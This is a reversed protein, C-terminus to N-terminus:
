LRPHRRVQRQGKKKPVNDDAHDEVMDDNEAARLWEDLRIPPGPADPYQDHFTKLAKPANKFNAADYWTDDPDHGTWQAQYQLKKYHTRSSKVRDVLWEKEGDVEIPPPPPVVQGPLPDMRAKRLRDAHFVDHMKIREPLRLRYSHGVKEIIEFPGDNQRDLKTSPRDTPWGKTSVYVSDGPGFDPERRKKNAQRAQREQAKKLNERAWQWVQHARQAFSQAQERNMRETPSSFTRTREEWDYHQRPRMGFEIEYPRLGTSEHPLTAQAYDMAPLHDSWDDQFHSVYPRLRQTLWENVIETNGDTQPHGATSLKQRVGTLKCLENMFASVFQPGRDSVMTLPTGFIRWIYTYYLWAVDAASDTKHGPLSFVRKSLRCVFVWAFDFGRKDRPFEKGDVSIHEWPRDPIPLSKLLGPTKDRPVTHWRCTRCNGMFQEMAKNMGPWSYQEQLIKRMKTKGPHASTKADHIERILATRLFNGAKDKEPVFLKGGPLYLGRQVEGDDALRHRAEERNAELIRDILLYGELPEPDVNEVVAAAAVTAANEAELDVVVANVRAPDILCATRARERRAKVTALDETKRSLADACVNSKGPRFSMQYDYGSLQEQWGAQRANLLRKTQFYELAEHDTVITFRKSLGLLEANWFQLARVVALLEKDQIPYNCEADNMVKSFFSVPRWLDDDQKQSFVASVVGDSADTEVTTQRDTSYHRLLPAQTLMDKLTKFARLEKPGMEFSRGKKSLDTLPKAIRGFNEIFRRYFNCFGLFSKVGKLSSPPQWSTVAQIKVPDVRLGDVGVIYGLFKVNRVEFESKKIDVQLGADRLRKLVQRVHKEHERVNESYIIIDDVYATCFVDLLGALVSNIYAQFTAPGNTLGFPVVRWQFSGYRTRFATLDVSDPHMRIRHFAQRIDLKTFIKAKGLRDLTESILPLPHRDKKTISNLKRFDVCFRWGGGPKKAFLVPSQYSATSPEIFGKKTLEGLTQRLLELHEISLKYLPSTVDPLDNTLEIKMDCARHPPLEDSATKSFVDALDRWKRPLKQRVLRATDPDESRTRKEEIIGGIEVSTVAGVFCDPDETRLLGEFENWRSRPVVGVDLTEGTAPIESSIQSIPIELDRSSQVPQVFVQRIEGRLEREM